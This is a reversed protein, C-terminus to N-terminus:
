YYQYLRKTSIINNNIWDLLKKAKTIKPYLKFIEDKRLPIRGYMPKGGNAKKKILEILDKNYSNPNGIIKKM